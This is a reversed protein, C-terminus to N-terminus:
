RNISGAMRRYTHRRGKIVISYTMINEPVAIGPGYGCDGIHHLDSGAEKAYLAIRKITDTDAGEQSTGITTMVLKNHQHCLHIYNAILTQSLGPITGPAPLLVIDVGADILELMKDQDILNRGIANADGAAHMRGAVIIIDDGHAAKIASICAVMSKHSVGVKPNGTLIVMDAGQEILLEVNKVTATRGNPITNLDEVSLSPDIPELNVGYFGATLEKAMHIPSKRASSTIGAISPATVDYMNLLVIDAGFAKALEPNSVDYLMPMQPCIIESVMTRGEALKISELLAEKSLKVQGFQDIIRKSM